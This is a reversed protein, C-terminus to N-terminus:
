KLSESKFESKSGNRSLNKQSSNTSKPIIKILQPNKTNFGDIEFNGDEGLILLDTAKSNRKKSAFIIIEKGNKQGSFEM